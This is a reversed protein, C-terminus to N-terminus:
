TTGVFWVGVGCAVCRATAEVVATHKASGEVGTVKVRGTSGFRDLNPLLTPPFLYKSLLPLISPSFPSLSSRSSTRDVGELRLVAPGCNPVARRTRREM